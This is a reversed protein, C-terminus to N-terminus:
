EANVTNSTIKRTGKRPKNKYTTTGENLVRQANRLQEASFLDDITHNTGFIKNFEDVMEQLGNVSYRPIDGLKKSFNRGRNKAANELVLPMDRNNVIQQRTAASNLPSDPFSKDIFQTLAEYVAPKNAILEQDLREGSNNTRWVSSANEILGVRVMEAVYATPVGDKEWSRAADPGLGVDPPEYLDSEIGSNRIQEQVFPQGFSPNSQLVRKLQSPWESNNEIGLQELLPALPFDTRRTKEGKASPANLYVKLEEMEESDDDDLPSLSLLLEIESDDRSNPANQFKGEAIFRSVPSNEYLDAYQAPTIMEGANEPLETQSLQFVDDFNEEPDPKKLKNYWFPYADEGFTEIIFRERMGARGINEAFRELGRLGLEKAEKNSVPSFLRWGDFDPSKGIEAILYKVTNFSLAAGSKKLENLQPGARLGLLKALNEFSIPNSKSWLTSMPADIKEEDDEGIVVNGRSVDKRVTWATPIRLADRLTDVSLMWTDSSHDDTARNESLNGVRVVGSELM